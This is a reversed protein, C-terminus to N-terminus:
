PRRRSARESGTPHDPDVLSVLRDALERQRREVVEGRRKNAAVILGGAASCVGAVVSSFVDRGFLAVIVAFGGVLLQLRLLAPGWHASKGLEIALEDVVDSLRDRREVVDVCM